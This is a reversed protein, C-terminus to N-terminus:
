LWKILHFDQRHALDPNKPFMRFAYNFDGTRKAPVECRFTFVSDKERVKEMEYVSVLERSGDLSKQGFVVELGFDTDNLGKIKLTIEAIFLEGLRLTKGSNSMVKKDILTVTDWARIMKNKWYVLGKAARYQDRTMKESSDFLKNYFFRFYDDLMRKNTYHPAIRAICNKIWKVWDVPINQENRDYFLPAVEAELINYVTEADLEDQFEQNEFTKEEKLKWGAEETYGEAWWGDLVSLNLVGNLVAKEGSTGSAELPRTPTNLWVDVGKVLERGLEMDYDELFLIKGRFEDRKSIEIIHKILDQGAKDAPHAKGAYIFQVPRDSNNVIRALRELDNFLLRARKYTAFRRAFGITLTNEDIAEMIQYIKRPTEQRRTLNSLLRKRIYLLLQKRREQRIDWIVKDPVNYINEWVSQSSIDQQFADGFYEAYLKQWERATWTGYHVGNTVHGIHLEEPFYGPYLEKFMSRSVKGHIKSVGNVEQALKAALVSMSYSEQTNQPNMKGLGMFTEWSVGLRDAYHPMYTRLMDESFFDHGAPVPTHTTFLSSARVVELAEHFSLKEDQVYKRLRELGTFAAHGENCHYVEPQIELADLLRIGGIGLLFEQKFRNEWDGGYLQHTIFRDVATNESIDTDLLYLPVRGVDMRWVRAHLTRGPFAISIRLREGNKKRVPVASMKAFDHPHYTDLQEGSVSLSQTFYGYRYMLGVGIMDVNDDSAQKLFDGALVGLGGSYIKITEHLGYEMSFYAITKTNKKKGAEMYTNFREIVQQYRRMFVKDGALREFHEMTLNEMLTIPNKECKEWLDFDISEFLERAEYNWTWWLNRAIDPLQRLAEPMNIEVSLKKWKPRMSEVPPLTLSRLPPKKDKFLEFRKAANKLVESYAKRYFCLQKEWVVQEAINGAAERAGSFYGHSLPHVKHDAKNFGQEAVKVTWTHMVSTLEKCAEVYNEDNRDILHIAELHKQQSQKVWQGFGSLSSTVTPVRMALSEMPTYGWPEYYSPFVTADFGALVDFYDMNYIGDEGNLYAPSFIVKVADEPSNTLGAQAIKQLIMDNEPDVLRHTLFEGTLPKSFDTSAIRDKVENRSGAQNAPVLIFAVVPTKLKKRNLGALSEIFLDIGKNRYEYRGSHAILLSEAPLDQSFLGRAVQLLMERAEVRKKNLLESSQMADNSFGNPTVLDPKKGHIRACEDATGASVTTFIDAMRAATQELSHKSVVGLNHAMADADLSELESYLPKGHGAMSRGLVTAHTTFVTGAQPVKDHLYLVGAGTMWEHFQAVIKDHASLYFDYFSEIVQGAAYGFMAPETYDWQGSLSNLGFKLWYESFIKDKQGFLPTFDVLIALPEGPVQWRGIRFHLGSHEAHERWERMLNQDEVFEPNRHTEKWVDPGITIYNDKHKEVLLPAKTSIVTHIGGIKNCVEWSIEFIYEQM